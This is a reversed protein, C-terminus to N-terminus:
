FVRGAQERRSQRKLEPFKDLHERMRAQGAKVRADADAAAQPTIAISRTIKAERIQREINRQQQQAQYGKEDWPPRKIEDSRTIGPLYTKMGCRCNPHGWKAARADDLTFRVRLTIVASSGNVLTDMRRTGAPGSAALIERAWRDCDKCARPGPTIIVLDFGNAVQTDVHGQFAASATGTRVAMSVYDPLKMNRNGGIPVTTLGQGVLRNLARQAAEKRFEAGTLTSGIADAVVERFV